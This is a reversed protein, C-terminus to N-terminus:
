NSSDQGQLISNVTSDFEDEVQGIQDIQDALQSLQDADEQTLSNDIQKAAIQYIKISNDLLQNMQDVDSSLTKQQEQYKQPAELDAIKGYEEKLWDVYDSLKTLNEDYSAQDKNQIADSLAKNVTEVDFDRDAIEQSIQDLSDVYAKEEKGTNSCASLFVTMLCMLLALLGRTLNKRMHIFGKKVSLLRLLHLFVCCIRLLRM